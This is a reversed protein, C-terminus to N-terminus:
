SSPTTPSSSSTPTSTPMTSASFVADVNSDKVVLNPGLQLDNGNSDATQVGTVKGILQTNSVTLPNGGSDTATISLTYIGDPLQNGSSDQGNWSINNVGSATPGNLTAVQQNASNVVGISVNQAVSPLSYSFDSQGNQILLQNNAPVEVYQGVYGLLSKVGSAGSATVLQQLLSNTNLQQEVGSFEVLEQTFQSTDMPSTPDQNQLQKTLIQLFTNFNGTLGSTSAAANAGNSVNQAMQQEAATTASQSQQIYSSLLSSNALPAVASATM